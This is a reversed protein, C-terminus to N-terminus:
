AGARHARSTVRVPLGGRPRLTVSADPLVPGSGAAVFRWRSALTALVLMAENWAFGEGICARTGAGFGIFAHRHRAARAEPTWRGPDVREPEPWYRADRHLVWPCVVAVTRVPLVSGGTLPLPELVRRGLVWAPPFLRLSEGVVGRTVPLSELDEAAPLRGALVRDLEGHLTREVEPHTALLHFAWTLALATTEHGALLLTMVEDRVARDDFLGAERADLLRGLLDGPGSAGHREVLSGVAGELEARAARFRRARPLPLALLLGGFPLSLSRFAGLAETLADGIRRAETSLDAGFLAEAVIGLTLQMMTRSLDVTEGDPLADSCVRAQRVMGPVYRLLESRHFAPQMRRRHELHVTGESTLLGDGLLVRTSRLAPGKEVKSAHTLLLDRIHDPNGLLVLRRGPVRFRALDGRERQIRTFFGLPDRRLELFDRGPLPLKRIVPTSM